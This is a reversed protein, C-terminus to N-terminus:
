TVTVVQTGSTGELGAPDYVKLSLTHSGATTHYTASIGDAVKTTGDYWAYVLPEGEPDASATGNLLVNGGGTPTATFAAVPRRNQNRLFVGSSLHTEGAGGAGDTDVYLDVHVQSIDTLASTNYSFVARAQGGALNTLHTAVQSQNGWAPDPCAASSPAAPAQETTWTQTQYWLAANAPVSADLCYRIRQVNATNASGSPGPTPSVTQFVMDTTGAKDVAQPQEYTPSALNRLERALKDLAGRAQDQTDNRANEDRANVTFGAFSEVSLGLVVLMLGIAVLLQVLGIEGREDRLRRM